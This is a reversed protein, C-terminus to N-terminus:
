QSFAFRSGARHIVATQVIGTLIVVMVMYNLAYPLLTINVDTITFLKRKWKPFIINRGVFGCVPLLGHLTWFSKLGRDFGGKDVSTSKNRM